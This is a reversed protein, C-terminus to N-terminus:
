LSLLSALRQDQLKHQKVWNALIHQKDADQNIRIARLLTLTDDPEKQTKWNTEALKLARKKSTEDDAKFTLLFIAEDRGHMHNNKALTNAFRQELTNVLKKELVPHGLAKTAIAFRLLLQDNEPPTKLLQIVEKPRQQRLLYDSYTRLIYTDNPKIRLAAKFYGEAPQYHGQRMATEALLGTVWLRLEKQQDHLQSLLHQQMRYARTASGTVSYLQSYCLSALWRSGIRSLASCSIQAKKYHGQVLQISSLTLWAQINRPQQKILSLLDDNADAYHHDHQSLTARILKIEIPVEKKPLGPIVAQKRWPKIVDHALRYYNAESTKRALQIYVTALRAAISPNNPAKENSKKLLLLPSLTKGKLSFSAKNVHQNGETTLNITIAPTSEETVPETKAYAGTVMISLLLTAGFLGWEKNSRHIISPM